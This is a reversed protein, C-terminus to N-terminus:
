DDSSDPCIPWSIQLARAREKNKKLSEPVTGGNLCFWDATQKNSNAEMAWTIATTHFQGLTVKFFQKVKRLRLNDM